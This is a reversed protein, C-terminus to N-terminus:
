RYGPDALNTLPFASHVHPAVIPVVPHLYSGDLQGFGTVGLLGLVEHVESELIQLMRAVGAEGAAALAYCYMRGMGVLEAGLAIAKVVDSGRAFGGDVWVRARGEVAKVVEPLVALAGRGHDLQRGGHNSVYVVEVGHEVALLADEATAIGKLVLPFGPFRQKWRKV